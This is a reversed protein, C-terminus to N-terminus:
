VIPDLHLYDNPSSGGPRKHYVLRQDVVAALDRALAGSKGQDGEAKTGKADVAITINTTGGGGSSIVGLKGDRGRKLPLIGEPGAEGMVGNQM